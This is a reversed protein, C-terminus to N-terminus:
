LKNALKKDLTLLEIQHTLATALIIADPLKIRYKQKLNITTNEISRSLDICQMMALLNKIAQTEIETIEPFGLLEMRTINSYACEAISVEKNQFLSIVTHDQEYMGIIINTDLLYKTGNM